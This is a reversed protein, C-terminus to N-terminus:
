RTRIINDKVCSVHGTKFISKGDESSKYYVFLLEDLEKKYELENIYGNNYYFDLMDKEVNYRADLFFPLLKKIEISLNQQDCLLFPCTFIERLVSNKYNLKQHCNKLGFNINKGILYIIDKETIVGNILDQALIYRAKEIILLKQKKSNSLGAM